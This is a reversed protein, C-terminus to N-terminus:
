REIAFFWKLFEWIRDPNPDEGFNLMATRWRDGVCVFFKLVIAQSSHGFIMHCVSLFISLCSLGVYKPSFFLNVLYCVREKPSPLFHHTLFRSPLHIQLTYFQLLDTHCWLHNSFSKSIWPVNRSIPIIQGCIPGFEMAYHFSCGSQIHSTLPKFGPRTVGFVEFITRAVEKSSAWYTNLFSLNHVVLWQVLKTPRIFEEQM